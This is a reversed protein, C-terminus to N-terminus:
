YLIGNIESTTEQPSDQNGTDLIVAPVSAPRHGLIADLEDYFKCSKRGRGTERNNDKVVRYQKKLNKIKNKCQEWDRDYGIENIKKAIKLFITKNRVAGDLEDQINREGWIAILAKVEEDPWLNGRSATASQEISTTSMIYVSLNCVM